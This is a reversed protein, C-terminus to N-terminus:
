AVGRLLCGQEELQAGLDPGQEELLTRRGANRNTFNQLEHAWESEPIRRTNM